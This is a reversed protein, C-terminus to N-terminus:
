MDLLAAGAHEPLSLVFSGGDRPGHDADGEGRAEQQVAIGLATWERHM